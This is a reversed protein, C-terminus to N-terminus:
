SGPDWLTTISGSANIDSAEGCGYFFEVSISSSEILNTALIDGGPWFWGTGKSYAHPPDSNRFLWAPNGQMRSTGNPYHTNPAKVLEAFGQKFEAPQNTTLYGYYMAPKFKLSFNYNRRGRLPVLGVIKYSHRQRVRYSLDTVKVWSRSKSVGDPRSAAWAGDPDSGIWPNFGHGSGPAFHKGYDDGNRFEDDWVIPNTDAFLGLRLYASHQMGERMFPKEEDWRPCWDSGAGLDIYNGSIDPTTSDDINLGHARMAPTFFYNGMVNATILAVCPEDVYVSGAADPITLWRSWCEDHPFRNLGPNEPPWGVCTNTSNNSTFSVPDAYGQEQFDYYLSGGPYGLLEFPYHLPGDTNLDSKLPSSPATGHPESLRGTLRGEDYYKEGGDPREILTQPFVGSMWNNEFTGDRGSVEERGISAAGANFSSLKGSTYRRIKYKDFQRTGSAFDSGTVNEKFFRELEGFNDDIVTADLLGLATLLSVGM